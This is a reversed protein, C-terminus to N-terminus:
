KKGRKRSEWKEKRRAARKEEALNVKKNKDLKDHFAGQSHRITAEKLYHKDGAKVEKEFELIVDSIELGEPLDLMPIKMKMLTEIAEQFAQEKETILSIAIGEKDARGTRGIRHIYYESVEPVDMNIVHSIETIDIGRAVVDTALLVRHVGAEFRKVTNIRYNQSKNSHIAGIQDPYKELLQEHLKDVLKKNNAFVLVKTLEKNELLLELLSAKTTFNPVSYAFQQIKEIPTGTPSIEVKMTNIFFTKLLKDVDKTLTASFLLNQRREPLLHLIDTLQKRFGLNLMEDVEDIILTKIEKLKLARTFALDLLRGPTAVVIDLGADAVKKQTKINTGGYIGAVRLNMYATLKEIESVVQVVLERTPVLILVRPKVKKSFKLLRLVPLLFAVTKGTGTQAIGIVDRGSMVIPYTAEQIPTPTVYGMDDLANRLPTNINLDSFTM